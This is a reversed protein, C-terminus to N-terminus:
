LAGRLEIHVDAAAKVTALESPRIPVINQLPLSSDERRLEAIEVAVVGPVAQVAAYVASLYIDQGFNLRAFAFFAPSDDPFHGTGMAQQAAALVASQDLNADPVVLARLEIGVPVYDVIELQRNPDRHADLYALLKSRIPLISSGDGAACTLRVVQQEGVWVWEARAKGVGPFSRALNEFDRISVARGFTLVTTPVNQREEDVTQPEQWGFSPAPNSVSKLGPRADLLTTIQNAGVAGAKGWGKRYRAHINNLGTPLRAGQVGDGFQVRLVDKEDISTTFIREDPARGYLFSAETWRVGNVSVQLSDRAGGDAAVDATFTVPSKQLAFSQWPQSGDGSGLTEDKVTEGHTAAAVNAYLVASDALCSHSLPPTVEIEIGAECAAPEVAAVTVQEAAGSGDAILVQRGIALEAATIRDTYIHTAGAAIRGAFNQRSFSIEGSTLEYIQVTRIDHVAPVQADLGAPTLTLQTAAGSLPAFNGNVQATASITFLGNFNGAPLDGRIVVLVQSNLKLDQATSELHLTTTAAQSFSTPVQKAGVIPGNPKDDKFLPTTYRAPANNGFLRFRRGFRYVEAGGPFAAAIPPSWSIQKGREIATVVSITKEEGRGGAFFILSQGPKLDEGGVRLIAQTAGVAYNDLTCAPVPWVRFRNLVAVAALDAETEFTAPSQGPAPKTQVRLGAPITLGAGPDTIFALFATAAVGPALKYGLLEALRILSERQVATRLFAENAIREQYFTLVDALYAWLQLLEIGYDDGDRSSWPLLVPQGAVGDILARQFSAFTGVRYRIASLSPRNYITRPSVPGAPDCCWCGNM